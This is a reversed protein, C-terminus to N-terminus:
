WFQMNVHNGHRFSEWRKVLYMCLNETFLSLVFSTRRTKIGKVILAQVRVTFVSLYKIHM